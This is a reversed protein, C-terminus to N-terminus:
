GNVKILSKVTLLLTTRASMKPPEVGGGNSGYVSRVDQEKLVKNKLTDRCM